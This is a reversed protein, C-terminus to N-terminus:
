RDTWAGAQATAYRVLKQYYRDVEAPTQVPLRGILLDPLPDSGVLLTYGVDGDLLGPEHNPGGEYVGEEHPVFFPSLAINYFNQFDVTSDGVLMVYVPPESWGGVSI